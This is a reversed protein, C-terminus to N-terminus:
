AHLLAGLKETVEAKIPECARVIASGQLFDLAQFMGVNPRILIDPANNRLKEGTITHTMAIVTMYVCDWASPVDRREAMPEGTVDVAITACRDNQLLDFPLPNTAGGDVLVRDDIVVPQILGPLAISAAVARKLPGTSLAVQQRRYLDSAVVTLPILLKNFDDPVITPLFQECFKEGDLVATNGIGGAVLDVFRGNRAALLRGFVERRDHVLSLVYRRIDRGTMGAAYAAGILAGASAGAIAVPKVGIEDLAELVVIHALGRAGGSGLALAIPKMGGGGRARIVM